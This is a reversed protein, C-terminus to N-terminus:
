KILGEEKLRNIISVPDQVNKDAFSALDEAEASAEGTSIITVTDDGASNLLNKNITELESIRKNAAQLEVNDTTEPDTTLAGIIMDTTVDEAKLDDNHNVLAQIIADHAAAKQELAKLKDDSIFKM